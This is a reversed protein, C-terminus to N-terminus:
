ESITLLGTPGNAQMPPLLSATPPNVMLAELYVAEQGEVQFRDLFPEISFENAGPTLREDESTIQGEDVMCFPDPVETQETQGIPAVSDHLEIVLKRRPMSGRAFIKQLASHLEQGLQIGRTNHRQVVKVWLRFQGQPLKRELLKTSKEPDPILGLVGEGLEQRIYSWRQGRKLLRQLAEYKKKTQPNTSPHAIGALEPYLTGFLFRKANAQSRMGTSSKRSSSQMENTVREFSDHLNALSLHLSMKQLEQSVESQRVAQFAYYFEQVERRLGAVYGPGNSQQPNLGFVSLAVQINGTSRWHQFISQWTSCATRNGISQATKYMLEATQETLAGDEDELSNKSIAKAEQLIWAIVADDKSLPSEERSAPPTSEERSSEESDTSCIMRAGQEQRKQAALRRLQRRRIKRRNRNSVTYTLEGQPITSDNSNRMQKGQATTSADGGHMQDDQATPTPDDLQTLDEDNIGGNDFEADSEVMADELPSM